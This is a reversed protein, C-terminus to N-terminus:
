RRAKVDHDEQAAVFRDHAWWPWRACEVLEVTSGDDYRITYVKNPMLGFATPRITRVKTGPKFNAM